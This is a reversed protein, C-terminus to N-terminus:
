AKGAGDDKQCCLLPKRTDGANRRLRLGARDLLSSVEDFTLLTLEHANRQRGALGRIDERYVLRRPDRLDWAADVKLRREPIELREEIPAPEGPRRDDVILEVCLWGGPRLWHHFNHFARQYEDRDKLYNLVDWFSYILAFRGAKYLTQDLLNGQRLISKPNKRRAQKLMAASLDLGEVRRLAPRLLACHTGTGCGVDLVPADAAITRTIPAIRELDSQPKDARFIADYIAAYRDVYIDEPRNATM